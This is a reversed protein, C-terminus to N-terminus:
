TKQKLKSLFNKPKKTQSHEMWKKFFKVLKGISCARHPTPTKDIKSIKWPRVNMGRCTKTKDFWRTNAQIPAPFNAAFCCCGGLNWSWFVGVGWWRLFSHGWTSTLPRWPCLSGKPLGQKAYLPAINADKRRGSFIDLFIPSLITLLEQYSISLLCSCRM